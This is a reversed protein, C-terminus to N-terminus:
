FLGSQHTREIRLHRLRERAWGPLAIAELEKPEMKMLGGGYVRGGHALEDAVETLARFLEGIAAPNRRAEAALPPKPYLVLYVNPATADSRNRLFRIARGGNQRGMYTCLIPAAPRQEQRYWPARHATLYRGSVGQEEGRPPSFPSM